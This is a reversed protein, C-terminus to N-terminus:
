LEKNNSYSHNLLEGNLKGLLRVVLVPPQFEKNDDGFEGPIVHAEWADTNAMYAIDEGCDHDYVRLQKKGSLDAYKLKRVGKWVHVDWVGDGIGNFLQEGNVKYAAVDAGVSFSHLFKDQKGLGKM